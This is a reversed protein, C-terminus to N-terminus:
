SKEKGERVRQMKGEREQRRGQSGYVFTAVLGVVDVAGLISGAVDHGGHILWVAAPASRTPAPEDGTGAM